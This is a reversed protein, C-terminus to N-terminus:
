LRLGRSIACHVSTASTTAATRIALALSKRTDTRPPPWLAAPRPTQSSPRTISRAGMLYTLTSGEERVTNTPAPHLHRSTSWAVWAKPSATGDPMTELVPTAPRVRPPPIPWRVRFYPSVISLRSETSITSASPLKTTALASSFASRNQAIRPPPPFKPTTVENRNSACGTLVTQAPGISQFRSSAASTIFHYRSNM